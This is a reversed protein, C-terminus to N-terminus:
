PPDTTDPRPELTDKAPAHPVQPAAPETPSDPDSDPDSEPPSDPPPPPPPDTLPSEGNALMATITAMWQSTLEIRNHLHLKEFCREVLKRVTGPAIDLHAAIAATEMGQALCCIVQSERDTVGFRAAVGLRDVYRPKAPGPLRWNVPFTHDAADNSRSPEPPQGQVPTLDILVASGVPPPQPPDALQKNATGQAIDGSTTREVM